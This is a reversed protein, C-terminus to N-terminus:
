VEDGGYLREKLRMIKNGIFIELTDNDVGLMMKLQELMIYVDAMEEVLNWLKENNPKRTYKTIAKILESLEEIAVTLQTSSGYTQIVEDLIEYWEDTFMFKGGKILHMVM